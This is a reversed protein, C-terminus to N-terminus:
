EKGVGNEKEKGKLTRKGLKNIGYYCSLEDYDLEQLDRKNLYVKECEEIAADWGMQHFTKATDKVLKMCEAEKGQLAKEIHPWLWWLVTDVDSDDKVVIEYDNSGPVNYQAEAIIKRVADKTLETQSAVSEALQEDLAM